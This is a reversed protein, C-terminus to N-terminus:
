GFLEDNDVGPVAVGQDAVGAVPIIGGIAMM